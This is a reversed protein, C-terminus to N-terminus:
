SCQFFSLSVLTIAYFNNQNAIWIGLFNMLNSANPWLNSSLYCTDSPFSSLSIFIVQRQADREQRKKEKKKPAKAEYEGGDTEDDSEDVTETNLTRSSNNM